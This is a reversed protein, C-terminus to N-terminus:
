SAEETAQALASKVRLRGLPTLRWGVGWVTEIADPGIAKRLKCMHVDVLKDQRDHADDNAPLHDILAEKRILRGDAAALRSLLWAPGRPLAFAKRLTLQRELDECVGLMDEYYAALEVLEDRPMTKLAARIKM